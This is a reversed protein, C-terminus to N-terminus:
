TATPAPRAASSSCLPSFLLAAAPGSRALRYIAARTLAIESGTYSRSRSRSRPQAQTTKPGAVSCRQPQFSKKDPLNPDVGLELLRRAQNRRRDRLVVATCPCRALPPAASRNCVIYVATAIHRSTCQLQQQLADEEEVYYNSRRSSGNWGRQALAGRRGVWAKWGGCGGVWWDGRRAALLGAVAVGGLTGAEVGQGNRLRVQVLAGLVCSRRKCKRLLAVCRRHQLSPGHEDGGDTARVVCGGSTQVCVAAAARSCDQRLVSADMEWSLWSWWPSM